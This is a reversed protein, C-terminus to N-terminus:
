CNKMFIQKELEDIIVLFFDSTHGVKKMEIHNKFQSFQGDTWINITQINEGFMEKM